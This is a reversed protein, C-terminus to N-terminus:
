EVETQDAPQPSQTSLQSKEYATSGVGAVTRLFPVDQAASASGSSQVEWRWDARPVSGREVFADVSSDRLHNRFAVSISQRDGSTAFLGCATETKKSVNSGNSLPQMPANPLPSQYLSIDCSNPRIAVTHPGIVHTSEHGRECCDSAAISADGRSVSHSASSFAHGLNPPRTRFPTGM